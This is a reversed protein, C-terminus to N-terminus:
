QILREEVLDRYHDLVWDVLDEPRQGCPQPKTWLELNEPRNDDKVGNKHHVNEFPELLRGLTREMVVRHELRWKGDDMRAWAYGTDGNVYRRPPPAPDVISGTKRLRAVHKSCLGQRRRPKDCGEARCQGEGYYHRFSAGALPDGYRYQRRYHRSCMGGNKVAAECDEVSCVAGSTNRVFSRLPVDPKINGTKQLRGYHGSCLGRGKADKDCTAVSCQKPEKSRTRGSYKPADMDRGARKRDYHMGCLGRAFIVGDCRAEGGIWTCQDPTQEQKWARVYCPRCLGRAAGTKPLISGACSSCRSLSENMGEEDTM